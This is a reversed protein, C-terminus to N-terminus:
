RDAVIEDACKSYAECDDQNTIFCAILDSDYPKKKRECRTTVSQRIVLLNNRHTVEDVGPPREPAGIGCEFTFAIWDWCHRTQDADVPDTKEPTSPLAPVSSATSSPETSPQLAGSTFVIFVGIGVVLLAAALVLASRKSVKAM